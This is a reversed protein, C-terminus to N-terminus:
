GTMCSFIQSIPNLCMDQEKPLHAKENSWLEIGYRKLPAVSDIVERNLDKGM